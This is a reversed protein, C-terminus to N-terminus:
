QQKYGQALADQLQSAPITGRKGDPAIVTVRGGTAPAAEAPAAGGRSSKIKNAADRLRALETAYAGHSQRRNKVKSAGGQLVGLEPASLAGFGTAGTRSQNKLEGLKELTLLSQVHDLDQIADQNFVHAGGPVWGDFGGVVSQAAPTLNGQEDILRSLTTLMDTAYSDDADEVAKSRRVTDADKAAQAARSDEFRQQDRKEESLRIQDQIVRSNQSGQGAITALFRKTEDAQAAQAARAEANQSAVDARAINNAEATMFNMARSDAKDMLGLKFQEAQQATQADRDQAIRQEQQQQLALAADQRASQQQMAQQQMADIQAQRKAMAQQMLFQEIANGGLAGPSVFRPSGM